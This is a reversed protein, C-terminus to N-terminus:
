ERRGRRQLSEGANCLALGLQFFEFSGRDPRQFRVTRRKKRGRRPGPDRRPALLPRGTAPDFGQFAFREEDFTVEGRNGLDQPNAQSLVAGVRCFLGGTAWFFGSEARRRERELTECDEILGDLRALLRQTDAEFRDAATTWASALSM